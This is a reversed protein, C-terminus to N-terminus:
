ELEEESRRGPEELREATGATASHGRDEREVSFAGPHRSLAQPCRWSLLLLHEDDHFLARASTARSNGHPTSSTLHDPPFQHHPNTPARSTRQHSNQTSRLQRQLALPSDLHTTQLWTTSLHTHAFTVLLKASFKLLVVPVDRTCYSCTSSYSPLSSATCPLSSPSLSTSTKM